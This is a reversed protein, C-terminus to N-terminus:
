KCQKLKQLLEPRPIGNAIAKEYAVRAEKKKKEKLYIDGIAVYADADTPIIRVAEELDVLALEDSGQELEINARMRLLSADQPYETILQNLADTASILKGEKEDLLVLGTRAAKNKLDSSLIANYDIRAEKYQRRKMYIYARFLRAEKDSPLLDIVSCYDIYAKELLGKDMYLAARNLLIATSYPIINLALTYSEIAADTKGQRKQVTGLNSFVLANRANAPDVKLAKRYLEEALSLSDKQTLDMAREVLEKYSQAYMTEMCLLGVFALLARRIYIRIKM